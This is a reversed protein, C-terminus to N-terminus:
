VGVSASASLKSMGGYPAIERERTAAKPTVTAPPAAQCRGEARRKPPMASAGQPCISRRRADIAAHGLRESFFHLAPLAATGARWLFSPFGTTGSSTVAAGTSLKRLLRYAAYSTLRHVQIGLRAHHIAQAVPMDARLSRQGCEFLPFPTPLPRDAVRGMATTATWVAAEWFRVNTGASKLVGTGPLFVTWRGEALRNRVFKRYDEPVLPAKRRHRRSNCLWCAAVINQLVDQGGDCRARLHEATCRSSGTDSAPSMSRGCFWCKGNQRIYAQDRLKSLKPM